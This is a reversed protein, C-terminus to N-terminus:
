DVGPRSFTERRGSYPPRAGSGLVRLRGESMARWIADDLEDESRVAAALDRGARNNHLDMVTEEWASVGAPRSDDGRVANALNKIEHAYGAMGSIHAGFMRRMAGSVFAHRFADGPGNRDNGLSRKKMRARVEVELRDREEELAILLQKHRRRQHRRRAVHKSGM